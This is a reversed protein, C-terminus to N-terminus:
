RNSCISIMILCSLHNEYRTARKFEVSLIDWFHRHNYLGTLEDRISLEELKQNASSIKKNVRKLETNSEKLKTYYGELRKQLRKQETVDRFLSLVSVSGRQNQFPSNLVDFTQRTKASYWEHRSVQSQVLTKNKYDESKEGYQSAFFEGFPKGIGDGFNEILYRNMFQITGDTTVCVGDAMNDFISLQISPDLLPEPHKKSAM